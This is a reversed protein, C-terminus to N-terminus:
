EMLILGSTSLGAGFIESEIGVLLSRARRERVREIATVPRDMPTFQPEQGGDSNAAFVAGRVALVRDAILDLRAIVDTYGLPTMDPPETSTIPNEGQEEMDLMMEAWEEDMALASKYHGYHPLADLLEYLKRVSL